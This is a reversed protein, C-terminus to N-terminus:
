PRNPITFTPWMPTPAINGCWGCFDGAENGLFINILSQSASLDLELVTNSISISGIWNMQKAKIIGAFRIM